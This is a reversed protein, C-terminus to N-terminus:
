GEQDMSSCCQGGNALSGHVGSKHDVELDDNNGEMNGNGSENEMQRGEAM